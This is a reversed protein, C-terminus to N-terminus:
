IGQPIVDIEVKHIVPTVTGQNTIRIGIAPTGNMKPNYSGRTTVGASFASGGSQFVKSAGSIPAGDIGIVDIQFEVDSNIPELYVRIQKAVVMQSFLQTQTEYVGPASTGQGTPFIDIAYFNYATTTGNYEITSFYMKSVGFVNNAYGPTSPGNRAFNSVSLLSPVKLIDGDELTSSVRLNRYHAQQVDNDMSGYFHLAAVLNSGNYEPAMWAVANGVSSTANYFPSQAGILSLAKQIPTMLAAGFTDYGFSYEAGGFTKYATGAFSPITSFSTAAVDAGNWYAYATNVTGTQDNDPNTALINTQTNEVTQMVLYVGDYTVDLDEVHYDSPFGPSIKTYSTVTLGSTVEAINSGNGFYINGVFLMSPRPVGQVWSGTSGIFTEGTGDFNLKTVGVDSGIWIYGSYFSISGGATFTPSESTLTTLLVPNDYNPNDGTPNNVQIKYVRGTHGIAYVFQATFGYSSATFTWKDDLTHGVTAAFTVTIGNSLTQTTGTIPVAAASTTGDTWSFTNPTGTGDITVTYTASGVGTFSGGTSLDNLGPTGIPTYTAPSTIGSEVRTKQAVILDTIVSGKISRANEMFSLNQPKGIINNGHTTDYKAFGSNMDGNLIRTLQGSFNTIVIPQFSNTQDAM